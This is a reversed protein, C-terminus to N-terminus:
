DFHISAQLWLARGYPNYNFLNYYPYASFTKDRPPRKNTLNNSILSLDISDTFKYGISGNFTTWAGVKGTGAYNYTQGRRTGLLSFTWDGIGWDVNATAVDRYGNYYNRISLLDQVPDGAIQRYTHKLLVNYDAGLGLTGWSGMDHRWNASAIIGNVVEDSINIPLTDVSKIGNPTAPNNAPFRTVLATESQCLASNPDYADGATNSGIRCNAEDQLIRDISLSNVEDTISVHYYDAKVTFDATPSWVVGYGWSKANISKLNINGAQRGSFNVSNQSCNEIPVNPEQTRCYYYDTGSTFYGSPGAFLYGMDPSRFATAYNGRILLSEFPRFELGLKYTAKSDSVGGYRFDDYRGSLNASLMSFIPVRFEAAAAYNRRTGEGQTGTLGWFDGNIVRQDIPNQWYQEGAQVLAAVGVDGAPLSFLSTNTIQLNVNQSYTTSTAKDHDSFGRYDAETLPTYMTATDPAYIPYGYYDGQQEGLFYAEVKAKLPWVIDTKVKQESRFYYANWDWNSAGFTGRAGATATYADSTQNDSNTSAGIEEPAFVRQWLEFRNTNQNFFYGGTDISSYWFRSGSNLNIKNHSYLVDGYLTVNDSARYKANLYVSASKSGNLFTQYGNSYNSGCYSGQPVRTFYQTTGGYGAALKDCNARGPDVYAGTNGNIILVNRPAVPAAGNLAPNDASSDTYDRDYGWIPSQHELQLAGTLELKGWTHGATVSVRQNEGGGESYGGMRATVNIGDVRDKLVINVVGAIASSGYIASQNGPLIDIHDVMSVPISSLDTFNSSGNYLLPYDALPHGNLLILTFGPDLGLLSVTTAGQTFGGAFQSDQVQGTALPQSRLVDYVNAYGRKEIQESTIQVTPASTEVDVQPILSGTVTITDLKKAKKDSAAQSTDSSTQDAADQGSAPHAHLVASPTGWALATGLAVYLLKRNM